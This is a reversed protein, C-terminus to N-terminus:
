TGQVSTWPLGVYSLPTLLIRGQKGLVQLSKSAYTKVATLRTFKDEASTNGLIKEDGSDEWTQRHCESSSMGWEDEMVQMLGDYQRAAVSDAPRALHSWCKGGLLHWSPPRAIDCWLLIAHHQRCRQRTNRTHRWFGRVLRYEQRIFVCHVISFRRKYLWCSLGGCPIVSRYVHSIWSATSTILNRTLSIYIKDWDLHTLCLITLTEDGRQAVKLM